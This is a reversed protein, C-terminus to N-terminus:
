NALDPPVEDAQPDAAEAAPARWSDAASRAAKRIVSRRQPDELMKRRSVEGMPENLWAGADTTAEAITRGAATALDCWEEVIDAEEYVWSVADNYTFTPVVVRSSHYVWRQMLLNLGRPSLCAIRKGLDEPHVHYTDDFLAAFDKKGSPAEQRLGPLPMLKGSGSWKEPKLAGYRVVEAVLLSAALDVGNPRMACPHQIVMVTKPESDGRPPRVLAGEFVDGTFVPRHAVVEDDGRALYLVSWDRSDGDPSELDHPV